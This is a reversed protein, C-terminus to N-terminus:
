FVRQKIDAIDQECRDVRAVLPGHGALYTMIQTLTAQTDEHAARSRLDSEILQAQMRDMREHLVIIAGSLESRTVLHQQGIRLAVVEIDLAEVRSDLKDVKTELKDMRSDLRDMRSDLRDMRSDLKDFTSEIKGNLKTELRAIDDRINRLITTTLDTTEM